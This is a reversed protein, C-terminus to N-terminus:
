RFSLAGGASALGSTKSDYCLPLYGSEFASSSYPWWKEEAEAASLVRLPTPCNIDVHNRAGEKESGKAKEEVAARECTSSKPKDRRM